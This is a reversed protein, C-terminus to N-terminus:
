SAHRLPIPLFVLILLGLPVSHGKKTQICLLPTVTAYIVPNYISRYLGQQAVLGPQHQLLM